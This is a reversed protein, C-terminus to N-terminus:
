NGNSDDKWDQYDNLRDCWFLLDEDTMDMLESASFSFEGALIGM